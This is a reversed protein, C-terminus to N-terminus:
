VMFNLVMKPFFPPILLLPIKGSEFNGFFFEHLKQDPFFEM